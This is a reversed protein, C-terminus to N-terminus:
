VEVYYIHYNTSFSTRGADDQGMCYPRQVAKIEATTVAPYNIGGVNLAAPLILGFRGHLDDFIDKALKAATPADAARNLIQFAGITYKTWPESPGGSDQVLVCEDPLTIQLATNERTNTYFSIGPFEDKLYQVFNYILNM